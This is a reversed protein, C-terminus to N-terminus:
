EFTKMKRVSQYVKTLDTPVSMIIKYGNSIWIFPRAKLKLDLYDM